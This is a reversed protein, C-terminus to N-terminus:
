DDANGLGEVMKYFATKKIMGITKDNDFGDQGYFRFPIRIPIGQLDFYYVKYNREYHVEEKMYISQLSQDLENILTESGKELLYLRKLTELVKTNDALDEFVSELLAEKASKLDGIMEYLHAYRLSFYIANSAYANGCFHLYPYATDSLSLYYLSSDYDGQDYYIQHLINSSRHKFNAYPDLMISGGVPEEENFNSTLIGNFISKAKGFEENEYYALGLNYFSKPYLVSKPHNEIIYLFSEIAKHNEGNRSYEVGENFYDSPM